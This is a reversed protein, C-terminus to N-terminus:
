RGAGVRFQRLVLLTSCSVALPGFKYGVIPVRQSYHKKKVARMRLRM